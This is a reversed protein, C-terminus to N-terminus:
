LIAGITSCGRWDRPTNFAPSEQQEVCLSLFSIHPIQKSKSNWLNEKEHLNVRLARLYCVRLFKMASWLFSFKFFSLLIREDWSEAWGVLHNKRERKKKGPFKILRSHFISTPFARDDLAKHTPRESDKQAGLTDNTERSVRVRPTSHSQIERKTM